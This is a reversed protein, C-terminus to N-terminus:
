LNKIQGLYGEYNRTIEHLSDGGFKELFAVALEFAVVAEGVVAAAPASCVDSREVSADAPRKSRLDVSQLPSMLTSIPKMAARVVLPAGNSMGGETGGSNNSGRYFGTPVIRPTGESVMKHPDFFIEDHVESGRRRAMEFGLGVEVGKIAQISMLAQALRGDLKRDWQTHTGLGPPLGLVVVEFIGGLTDGKKKCDEILAIMREEAEKDAVRVPSEECRAFIEEYGLEPSKAAVDGISRIYGMVRIGFPALLQKCFSGVATRSVTDRASARELVSRIDSHHYKLIGTLDAHGPRPKTVAISEDRDEAAASMKKTWNKWDRNEIGLAVPSGLTEGWRIGSRIQVEDKEILMRGGRGYGQQRRWLDHNIKAIDVPFGAPVGDVIATLCPGHSEGATFYRLM